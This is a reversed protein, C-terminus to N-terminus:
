GLIETLKKQNREWKQAEKFGDALPDHHCKILLATLGMIVALGGILVMEM